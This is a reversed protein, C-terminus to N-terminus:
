VRGLGEVRGGVEKGGKAEGVESRTDEAETKGM